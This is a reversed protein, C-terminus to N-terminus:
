NEKREETTKDYTITTTSTNVWHPLNVDAGVKLTLKNTAKYSLGTSLTPYIEVKSEKITNLNKYSVVPDASTGNTTTIKTTKEEDNTFTFLVPIGAAFSLTVKEDPKVTTAWGSSLQVYKTGHKKTKTDQTSENDGNKAYKYYKYTPNNFEFDADFAFSTTAISGESKPLELDTGFGFIVVPNSNSTTEKSSYAVDNNTGKSEEKESDNIFQIGFKGRPSLKLGNLETNFGVAVEPWITSKNTNVKGTGDTKADKDVSKGSAFDTANNGVYRIAPRVALNGLSFSGVNFNGLGILTAFEFKNAGTGGLAKSKEETTVEGDENKTTENSTKFESGVFNGAFYYGTYIKGIRTAFGANFANGLLTAPDNYGMFGYFKNFEVDSWSNVNMYNDVDGVLGTLSEPNGHAPITHSQAFLSVSLAAVAAISIIKKVSIM